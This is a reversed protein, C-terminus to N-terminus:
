SPRVPDVRGLPLRHARCFNITGSKEPRLSEPKPRVGVAEGQGIVQNSVLAMIQYLGRAQEIDAVLAARAAADPQIPQSLAGLRLRLMDAEANKARIYEVLGYFEALGLRTKRDFHAVTGDNSVSQWVHDSWARAPGRFSFHFAGETYSPVPRYPGPAIVAKELLELQRDICPQVIAMESAAFYQDQMEEGVSDRATGAVDRWHVDEVLQEAGLAIMVGVVIIGVEGAFERWGHLPKPLHFQM